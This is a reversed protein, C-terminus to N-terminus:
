AAPVFRLISGAYDAFYLEGDVDEGFASIQRGTESFINTQWAGDSDRYSAWIRGSCWDAFLYAGQLDPIAAGRYVFGGSVSCAGDSHDYAAFPAVINEGLLTINANYSQAAEFRSWGYNEGGISDAPQFNVEEYQNQGVDAIYLDGTARDFSFRWANRLGLAWIEPLYNGDLLFPNDAPIIYPATASSEDVDVRLIKGLWSQPDQAFNQPDGQSGGDGFSVYLYGDPGFAIQGGNHNSYPQQQQLIILGGAADIPETTGNPVTYRAVVTNGNRDTYNVFVWGNDAYAPHFAVGLLGRESYGGGLAEQSIVTRLDLFPAEQLIGDVLVRVLGGQEVIFLRADGAHAIDLPRRLGSIIREIGVNEPNPATERLTIPEDQAVAVAALALLLMSVFLLRRM